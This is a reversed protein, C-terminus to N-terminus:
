LVYICTAIYYAITLLPLAPRQRARGGRGIGGEAAAGNRGAPVCMARTGVASNLAFLTGAPRLPAIGCLAADAPCASCLM